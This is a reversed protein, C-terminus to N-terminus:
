EMMEAIRGSKTVIYSHPSIMMMPINNQILPDVAFKNLTMTAEQTKSFGLLRAGEVCYGENISYQKALPHGFSGEGHILILQSVNAESIEKALRRIASLNAAFSKEKRTITSGDIKLVTPNPSM